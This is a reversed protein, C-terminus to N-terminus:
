WDKEKFKLGTRYALEAKAILEMADQKRAKAPLLWHALMWITGESIEDAM